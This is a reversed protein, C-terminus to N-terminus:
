FPGRVVGHGIDVCDVGREGLEGFAAVYPRVIEFRQRHRADGVVMDPHVSQDEGAFRRQETNRAKALPAEFGFGVKGVLAGTELPRRWAGHRGLQEAHQRDRAM